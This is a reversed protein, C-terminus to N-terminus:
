EGGGSRLSPLPPDPWESERLERVFAESSKGGTADPAAGRLDDWDPIVSYNKAATGMNFAASNLVATAHPDNMAKAREHLFQIAWKIANRQGRRYSDDRM